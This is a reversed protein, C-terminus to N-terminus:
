PVARHHHRMPRFLSPFLRSMKASVPRLSEPVYATPMSINSRRDHSDILYIPDGTNRDGLLPDRERKEPWLMQEISAQFVRMRAGVSPDQEFSERRV